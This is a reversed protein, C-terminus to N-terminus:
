NAGPQSCLNRTAARNVEAARAKRRRTRRMMM